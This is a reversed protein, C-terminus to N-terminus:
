MRSITGWRKSLDIRLQDGLCNLYLIYGLDIAELNVAPLSGLVFVLLLFLFDSIVGLFLELLDFRSIIMLFLLFSLLSLNSINISM